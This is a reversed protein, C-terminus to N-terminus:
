VIMAIVSSHNINYAYSDVRLNLLLFLHITIILIHIIIISISTSTWKILTITRCHGEALQGGSGKQLQPNRTISQLELTEIRGGQDSWIPQVLQEPSPPAMRYSRQYSRVARCRREQIGRWPQNKDWKFSVEYPLDNDCWNVHNRSMFPHEWNISWINITTFYASFSAHIRYFQSFGVVLICFLLYLTVCFLVWRLRRCKYIFLYM